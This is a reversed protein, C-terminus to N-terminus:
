SKQLQFLAGLAVFAAAVFLPWTPHQCLEFTYRCVSTFAVREGALFLVASFASLIAAIFFSVIGGRFIQAVRENMNGLLGGAPQLDGSPSQKAAAGLWGRM